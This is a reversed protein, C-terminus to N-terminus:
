IGRHVLAAAIDRLSPETSDLYDAPLGPLPARQPTRLWRRVSQVAAAPEMRERAMRHHLALYAVTALRAPVSRLWGIVGTCGARIFADALAPFAVGPPLIVLGPTAVVAPEAAFHLLTPDARDTRTYCARFLDMEPRDGVFVPNRDVPPRRRGALTLLQRHGSVTSVISIGTAPPRDAAILTRRPLSRETGIAVRGSSAHLLLMGDPQPCALADAGVARLATTLRAFVPPDVAPGLLAGTRLLLPLAEDPLDDTRATAARLSALADTDDDAAEPGGTARGRQLLAAALFLHDDPRPPGTHNVTTALAVLDDATDVDAAKVLLETLLAYPDGPGLRDRFAARAAGADPEPAATTEPASSAPRPRPPTRPTSRPSPTAPRPP